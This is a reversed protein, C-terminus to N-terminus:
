HPNPENAEVSRVCSTTSNLRQRQGFLLFPFVGFIYVHLTFRMFSTWWIKQDHDAPRQKNIKYLVRREPVESAEELMGMAQRFREVAQRWSTQATM